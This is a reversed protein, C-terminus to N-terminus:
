EFAFAQRCPCPSSGRPAILMRLLPFFFQFFGLENAYTGTRVTVANNDPDIIIFQGGAGRAVFSTGEHAAFANAYSDRGWYTRLGSCTRPVPRSAVVWAEPIIQQGAFVGDNLYLLGFRLMDRPTLYLGITSRSTGDALAEWHVDTIGLPGFLVDNAYAHASRGVARALLASLLEITVSRYSRFRVLEGPAAEQPLAFIAAGIDPASWVPHDSQHADLGSTMTLLHAVTMDRKSEQGPAIEVEPYFDTVHQDVGEIYGQAIAIGVLAKLVTRTIAHVPHLTNIDFGNFYTEHVLEDDQWILLANTEFGAVPNALMALNAAVFRPQLGVPVIGVFFVLISSIWAMIHLHM